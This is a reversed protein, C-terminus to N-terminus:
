LPICWCMIHDERNGLFLQRDEVHKHKALCESLPVVTVPMESIVDVEVGPQSGNELDLPADKIIVALEEETIENPTIFGSDDDTEVAPTYSETPISEESYPNLYGNEDFIDTAPDYTEEPPEEGFDPTLFARSEAHFVNRSTRELIEIQPEMPTTAPLQPVPVPVAGREPCNQLHAKIKGLRAVMQTEGSDHDIDPNTEIKQILELGLRKNSFLGVIADEEAQTMELNLLNRLLLGMSLGHADSVEGSQNIEELARALDAVFLAMFQDQLPSNTIGARREADSIARITFPLIQYMMRADENRINVVNAVTNRAGDYGLKATRCQHQVICKEAHENCRAYGYVALNGGKYENNVDLTPLSALTIGVGSTDQNREYLPIFLLDDVVIGNHGTEENLHELLEALTAM